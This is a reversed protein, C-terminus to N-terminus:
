KYDLTSTPICNFSCVSTVYLSVNSYFTPDYLANITDYNMIDGGYFYDSTCDANRRM